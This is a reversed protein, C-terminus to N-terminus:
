GSGPKLFLPLDHCDSSETLDEHIKTEEIFLLEFFQQDLLLLPGVVLLAWLAVPFYTAVAAVGALLVAAFVYFWRRIVVDDDCPLVDM